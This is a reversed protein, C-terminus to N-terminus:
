ADQRDDGKVGMRRQARGLPLMFLYLGTVLLLGLPLMALVGGLLLGVRVASRQQVMAIINTIAALTFAISLWRHIRRFRTGSSHSRRRKFISSGRSLRM